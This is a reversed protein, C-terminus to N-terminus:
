YIYVSDKVYIKFLKLYQIYLLVMIGCFKYCILFEEIIIFKCLCDVQLMFIIVIYLFYLMVELMIVILVM